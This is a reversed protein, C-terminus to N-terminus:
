GNFSGDTISHELDDIAREINAVIAKATELERIKKVLAVKAKENVEKAVELEAQQRITLKTGIEVQAM